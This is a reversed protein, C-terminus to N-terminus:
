AEEPLLEALPLLWGDEDFQMEIPGGTVEVGDMKELEPLLNESVQVYELETTNQARLVTAEERSTSTTGLLAHVAARDSGFAIPIRGLPLTRSTLVGIRIADYDLKAVLRDSTADAMGVGDANGLSQETLDSVYVRDARFDTYSDHVNLYEQRGIVFPDMGCGSINKGMEDILLLNAKSVPMAPALSCARKFLSPETDTMEEAPVAQIGAIM